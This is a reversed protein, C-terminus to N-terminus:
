EASKFRQPNKEADWQWFTLIGLGQNESAFREFSYLRFQALHNASLQNAVQRMGDFDREFEAFAETHEKEIRRMEKRLYDSYVPRFKEEHEEKRQKAAQAKKEARKKEVKPPQSFDGREIAAILLGAPNEVGDLKRHPWADIEREVREPFKDVLERAKIEAINYALLSALLSEQKVSLQKEQQASKILRPKDQARSPL